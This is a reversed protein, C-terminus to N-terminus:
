SRANNNGYNNNDPYFRRSLHHNSHYVKNRSLLSYIIKFTRDTIQTELKGQFFIILRLADTAQAWKDQQSTEEIHSLLKLIELLQQLNETSTQNRMCVAQFADNLNNLDYEGASEAEDDRQFREFLEVQVLLDEQVWAVRKLKEFVENIRLGQLIKVCYLKNLLM